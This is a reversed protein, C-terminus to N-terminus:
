GRFDITGTFFWLQSACASFSVNKNSLKGGSRLPSTLGNKVVFSAM